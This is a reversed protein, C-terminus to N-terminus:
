SKPFDRAVYDAFTTPARGLLWRLVNGNGVLGHADYHANMRAMTEIRAAPMGAKELGALFADLPKAEATVPKGLYLSLMAACDAQSLRELGCLQYTAYEHGPQMLVNRSAEALDHMDVLNFLSHVDFPMRHVGASQVEGWIGALHQMYRCPQLITYCLGSDILEAEAKQKRQHHPVDAQPHLVSYLVLRGTGAALCAEIMDHAIRDEAPHMPPCIHIVQEVGSVAAEIAARDALDGLAYDACGAAVLEEGAEKRRVFGRVRAGAGLLETVVRRGTKGSAGTVLIPKTHDISM